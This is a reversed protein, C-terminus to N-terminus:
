GGILVASLKIDDVRLDSKHEDPDFCMLLKVFHLNIYFINNRLATSHDRGMPGHRDEISRQWPQQESQPCKIHIEWMLKSFSTVSKLQAHFLTTVVGGGGIIAVENELDACQQKQFEKWYLGIFTDFLPRLIKGGWCAAM